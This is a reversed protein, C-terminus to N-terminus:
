QAARLRVREALGQMRLRATKRCAEELDFGTDVARVAETALLFITGMDFNFQGALRSPATEQSESSPAKSGLAWEWLMQQEKPLPREIDFISGGKGIESDAQRIDVFVLGLLHRVFQKLHSLGAQSEQESDALEIFLAVNTLIVERGWLRALTELEAPHSPLVDVSIRYLLLGLSYV